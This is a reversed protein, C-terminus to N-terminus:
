FFIRDAGQSVFVVFHDFALGCGWRFDVTDGVVFIADVELPTPKREYFSEEADVQGTASFIMGQQKSFKRPFASFDEYTV